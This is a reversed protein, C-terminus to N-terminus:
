HLTSKPIPRIRKAISLAASGRFQSTIHFHVAASHGGSASTVVLISASWTLSVCRKRHHQTTATRESVQHTVSYSESLRESVAPNAQDNGGVRFHSRSQTRLVRVYLAPQGVLGYGWILPAPRNIQSRIKRTIYEELLKPIETTKQQEYENLEDLITEINEMIIPSDGSPRQKDGATGM